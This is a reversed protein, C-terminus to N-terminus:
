RHQPEKDVARELLSVPIVAGEALAHQLDPLGLNAAAELLPRPEREELDRHLVDLSVPGSVREGVHGCLRAQGILHRWGGSRDGFTGCLAGLAGHVPLQEGEVVGIGTQRWDVTELAEARATGAEVPAQQDRGRHLAGALEGPDVVTSAIRM